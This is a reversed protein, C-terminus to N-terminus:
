EANETQSGILWYGILLYNATLGKDSSSTWHHKALKRAKAHVLIELRSLKLRLSALWLSLSLSTILTRVVIARAEILCVFGEPVIRKSFLCRAEIPFQSECPSRRTFQWTFWWTFRWIFEGTFEWDCRIEKSKMSSWRIEGKLWKNSEVWKGDEGSRVWNMLVTHTFVTQLYVENLAIKRRDDVIM